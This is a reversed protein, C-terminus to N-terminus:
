IQKAKWKSPLAKYRGLVFLHWHCVAANGQRGQPSCLYWLDGYGTGSGRSSPIPARRQRWIESSCSDGPIWGRLLKLPLSKIQCEGQLLWPARWDTKSWDNESLYLEFCCIKRGPQSSPLLCGKNILFLKLLRLTTVLFSIELTYQHDLLKVETLTWYCRRCAM